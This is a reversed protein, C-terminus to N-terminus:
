VGKANLRRDFDAIIELVEVPDLTISESDVIIIQEEKQIEVFAGNKYIKGNLFENLMEDDGELYIADPFMEKARELAKEKSTLIDIVISTLREGEDNIVHIYTNM